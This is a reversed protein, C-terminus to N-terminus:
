LVHGTEFVSHSIIVVVLLVDVWRAFGFRVLGSWFRSVFSRKFIYDLLACSHLRHFIDIM